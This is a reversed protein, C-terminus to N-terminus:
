NLITLFTLLLTHRLCVSAKFQNMNGHKQALTQIAERVNTGIKIDGCIYLIAGENNLLNWLAEGNQKFITLHSLLKFWLNM